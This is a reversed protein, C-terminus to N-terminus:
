SPQRSQRIVLMENGGKQFEYQTPQISPAYGLEGLEQILPDLHPSRELALTMLPFIRVESSVRLLELVSHRHFAYDLQESYLFLFHSCLALEFPDNQLSLTPLEGVRYRGSHKGAEYDTLFTQITQTRSARLADPSTHYTWVWDDLTASVQEIIDDVVAEFRSLIDAGSFQYIPDISTIAYGRQTGEANFSAPGDAVSVIKRRLDSESLNFMNVYEDLSRGFPVIQQLQMAM